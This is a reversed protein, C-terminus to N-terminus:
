PCIDVKMQLARLAQVNSAQASCDIPNDVAVLTPYQYNAWTALLLPGLDQIQNDSLDLAASRSCRECPEPRFTVRSLASLDQLHNHALALVNFASGMLATERIVTLGNNSLNFNELNSFAFSGNLTHIANNSLDLQSLQTLASLPSPDSIQNQGLFLSILSSLSALQGVETIQNDGLQLTRLVRLGSVVGLDNIQNHALDLSELRALGSLVGLPSSIRNSDLGLQTLQTLAGLPTADQVRNRNLSLRTLMSLAGLPSVDSVQNDDANLVGLQRLRSIPSLDRIQNGALDLSTLATLEALPTVDAVANNALSLSQLKVLGVLSRVDAIASKELTLLRLESLEALPGLERVPAETVSLEHLRQLGALPALDTVASKDISLTDLAGLCEFGALSQIAPDSLSASRVACVETCSLGTGVDSRGLLAPRVAANSFRAGGQCTTLDPCCNPEGEVFSLDDVWFDFDAEQSMFQINTLRDLEASFKPQTFLDLEAFSVTYELWEPELRLYVGVPGVCETPAGSECTGGYKVATTSATSIRVRVNSHSGNGTRAWFHIGQYGSADYLGHNAGDFNLDLGVGAGWTAFGSGYTHIARKSAGRGGPILSTEIAIGPPTVSPWQKGPADDHFVYWVGTRGSGDCIRGSGDELDDILAGCERPDAGSAGGESSFGGAGDGAAESGRAAAGSSSVTTDLGGAGANSGIGTARSGDSWRGCSSSLSVCLVLLANRV